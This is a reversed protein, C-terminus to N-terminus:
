TNKVKIMYAFVLTGVGFFVISALGIFWADKNLIIVVFGGLVFVISSILMLWLTGISHPKATNTYSERFSLRTSSIPLGRLLRATAFWYWAFIFPLLALNFIWGIVAGVAIIALLSITYYLKVFRRVEQKKKDDALVYGKGFVGWRYYLLHGESDTIFNADTLRDFYGM